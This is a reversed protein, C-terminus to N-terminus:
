ILDGIHGLTVQTFMAIFQLDGHDEKPADRTWPPRYTFEMMKAGGAKRIIIKAEPRPGYISVAIEDGDPGSFSERSKPVIELLLRVADGFTKGRVTGKDDDFSMTENAVLDAYRRVTEASDKVNRSGAVAIMMHVADAATMQAAARGRGAVTRLGALSLNRDHQVVTNEPVGMVESVKLVLERATAM